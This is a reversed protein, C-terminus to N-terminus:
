WVRSLENKAIKTSIASKMYHKFLLTIIIRYLHPSYCLDTVWETSLEIYIPLTAYIRSGSQLYKKIIWSGSQLYNYLDMVCGTSLEIYIPFYCLDTVWDKSLEIYIPLPLMFGHGLRYHFMQLGSAWFVPGGKLDRGFMERCLFDWWVPSGELRGYKKTRTSAPKSFNWKLETYISFYWLDTVWETSLEVYIPFYWLDM